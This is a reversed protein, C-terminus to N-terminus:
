KAPKNIDPKMMAFLGSTIGALLLQQNDLYPFVNEGVVAQAIIAGLIISWVVTILRHIGFAAAEGSNGDTLLEALFSGDTQPANTVARKKPDIIPASRAAAFWGTASYIGLLGLMQGNLVGVYQGTSMYIFFFGTTILAFWYMVQTRALSYTGNAPDRIIGTNRCMWILGLAFSILLLIGIGLLWPHYIRLSANAMDQCPLKSANLTPCLKISSRATGNWLVTTGSWIDRIKASEASTADATRPIAFRVIDAGMIEGVAVDRGDIMLRPLNDASLDKQRLCLSDGVGISIHSDITHYFSDTGLRGCQGEDQTQFSIGLGLLLIFFFSTFIALWKGTKVNNFVERIKGFNM